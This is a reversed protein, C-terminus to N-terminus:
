RDKRKGPVFRRIETSRQLLYDPQPSQGSLLEHTDARLKFFCFGNRRRLMITDKRVLMDDNSQRYEMPLWILPKGGWYLWDDVHFIPLHSCVCPEPTQKPDRPRIPLTGYNILLCRGSDCLELRDIRLPNVRELGSPLNFTDLHANTELDFLWLKPTNLLAVIPQTLPAIAMANVHDNLKLHGRVRSVKTDVDFEIIEIPQFVEGWSEAVYEYKVVAIMCVDRKSNRSSYFSVLTDDEHRLGEHEVVSEGPVVSSVLLPRKYFAWAMLQGNTSFTAKSVHLKEGGKINTTRIPEKRPKDRLDWVHIDRDGLGTLFEHNTSINMREVDPSNDPVLLTREVTDRRIDWLDITRGDTITSKEGDPSMAAVVMEKRDEQIDRLLAEVNWLRITREGYTVITQSDPSFIAQRESVLVKGLLKRTSVDWIKMRGWALGVLLRRNPALCAYNISESHEFIDSSLTPNTAEGLNLSYIPKGVILVLVVNENGPMPHIERFPRWDKKFICKARLDWVDVVPGYQHLLFRQTFILLPSTNIKPMKKIFECSDTMRCHIPWGASNRWIFIVGFAYSVAFFTTDSSFSVAKVDKGESAFTRVRSKRSPNWLLVDGGADVSALLAGDPSFLVSTLYAEHGQLIAFPLRDRIYQLTIENGRTRCYALLGKKSMDFCRIKAAVRSIVTGTASNWAILALDHDLTAMLTGDLTFQLKRIRAGQDNLALLEAGWGGEVRPRQLVWTPIKQLFRQKVVSQEPAFMM